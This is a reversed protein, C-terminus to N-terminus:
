IGELIQEVRADWTHEAVAEHGRAAIRERENEHELYYTVKDVAEEMGDFVVLHEGEKFFEGLDPVRNVVALVGFGLLEFVRANLDLLSSWNLGIHAANYFRRAEEYVPGLDFKVSVDRARLQKVLEVRQSYHLGLLCCDFENEADVDVAHWVPDHAYPLYVDGHQAYVRQMCYFTDALSRQKDYNLVHPDTAVVVNKGKDPRGELYFGADIQLWLDPSPVGARALKAEVFSAPLSRFTQTNPFAMDPRGAYKQPLNMGGGWPIWRGTYPGVTVLRVDECRRLAAEFYRLIAFPYYIGTLVVIV